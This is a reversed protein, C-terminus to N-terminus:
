ASTELARETRWNAELSSFFPSQPTHSSPGDFLIKERFLPLPAPIDLLPKQRVELGIFGMCTIWVVGIGILAIFKRM